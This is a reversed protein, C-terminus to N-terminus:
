GGYTIHPGLFPAYVLDKSLREPTRRPQLRYWLADPMIFGGLECDEATLEDASRIGSVEEGLIALRFPAKEFLHSAISALLSDLTGLWPNTNIELPDSVSFRLELMGVPISLDLWDSEGEVRILYSNCGLETEGDVRLCGYLSAPALTLVGEDVESGFGSREAWPGRLQPFHWLGRLARIALADDGTPGLEFCLEYHTGHWNEERLYESRKM